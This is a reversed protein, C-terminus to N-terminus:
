ALTLGGQILHAFIATRADSAAYAFYEHAAVLEDFAQLTSAITQQEALPPIPVELEGLNDATIFAIASGTSRNRIWNLVAPLSLFGLLFRPDVAERKARLRLLNTDFLWGEQEAEVLAPATTRGSRVCLIDNETLRFKALRQALDETVQKARSAVVRGGRLHRSTVVPVSANGTEEQARLRSYSPGPQIDCVDTLPLRKWEPPLDGDYGTRQLFQLQTVQADLKTLRARLGELDRLHKAAEIAHGPVISIAVGMYDAPNLSYNRQRVTDISVRAALGGGRLEAVHGDALLDLGDLAKWIAHGADQLTM